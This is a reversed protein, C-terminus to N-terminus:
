HGDGGDRPRQGHGLQPPISPPIVHDPQKTVNERGANAVVVAFYPLLVGGALAVWAVPRSMDWFVVAAGCCLTRVMMSIVYRRQRGRVDESLGTRAGTIRFVEADRSRKRM